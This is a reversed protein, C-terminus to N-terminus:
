LEHVWYLLYDALLDYEENKTLYAVLSKDPALPLTTRRRNRGYRFEITAEDWATNKLWQRASHLPSHPM